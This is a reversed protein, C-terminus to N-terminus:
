DGLAAMRLLGLSLSTVSTQESAATSYRQVQSVHTEQFTVLSLFSIDGSLVCAPGWLRSALSVTPM